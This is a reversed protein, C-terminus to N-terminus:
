HRPPTGNPNRPIARFVILSSILSWVWAGLFLGLGALLSIIQGSDPLQQTRIWYLGFEVMAKITLILGALSLLMQLWGALKAGAMHTGLGPLVLLNTVVCSWAKSREILPPSSTKM